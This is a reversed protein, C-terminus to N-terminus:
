ATVVHVHTDSQGAADIVLALMSGTAQRPGLVLTTSAVGDAGTTAVGAELTTGAAILPSARVGAELSLAQSDDRDLNFQVEVGPLARGTADRLTAIVAVRRANTPDVSVQTKLRAAPLGDNAPVAVFSGRITSIIEASFNSKSTQDATIPSFALHKNAVTSLDDRGYRTSLTTDEVVRLTMKLEFDLKPVYYSVSQGAAGSSGQRSLEDQAHRLGDAISILYDDITTLIEATDAM